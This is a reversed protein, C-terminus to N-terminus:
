THLFLHPAILWTLINLISPKSHNIILKDKSKQKSATQNEQSSTFMTQKSGQHSSLRTWWRRTPNLNAEKWWKWLTDMRGKFISLSHSSVSFLIILQCFFLFHKSPLFSSYFQLLFKIWNVTKLQRKYSFNYNIYCHNSSNMHETSMKSDDHSESKLHNNVWRNCSNPDFKTLSYGHFTILLLNCQTPLLLM